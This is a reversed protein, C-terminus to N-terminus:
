TGTLSKIYLLFCWLLVCCHIVFLSNPNVSVRSDDLGGGELVHLRQWMSMLINFFPQYSPVASLTRHSLRLGWFGCASLPSGCVTRQSGCAKAHVYM